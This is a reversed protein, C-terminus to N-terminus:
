NKTQRPSNFNRYFTLALRLHPLSFRSSLLRPTLRQLACSYRLWTLQAILRCNSQGAKQNGSGRGDNSGLNRVFGRLSRVCPRAPLSLRCAFIRCVGQMSWASYHCLYWLSDISYTSHLPNLLFGRAFHFVTTCPYTYSLWDFMSSIRSSPALSCAYTYGFMCCVDTYTTSSILSTMTYFTSIYYATFLFTRPLTYASSFPLFFHLLYIYDSVYVQYLYM